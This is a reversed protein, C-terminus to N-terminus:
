GQLTTVPQLQVAAVEKAYTKSGGNQWLGWWEGNGRWCQCGTAM